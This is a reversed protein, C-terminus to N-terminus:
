PQTQGRERQSANVNNGEAMGGVRWRGSAAEQKDRGLIALLRLVIWPTIATDIQVVKLPATM